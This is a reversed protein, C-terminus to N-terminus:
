RLFLVCGGGSLNIVGSVSGAIGSDFTVEVNGPQFVSDLRFGLWDSVKDSADSLVVDGQRLTISARSSADGRNSVKDFAVVLNGDSRWKKTVPVTIADGFAGSVVAMRATERSIATGDSDRYELTLAYFDDHKPTAGEFPSWLICEAGASVEAVTQVGALNVATLVAKAAKPPFSVPLPMPNAFMTEWVLNEDVRLDVFVGDNAHAYPM